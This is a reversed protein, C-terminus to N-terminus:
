KAGVLSQKIQPIKATIADALQNFADAFIEVGKVTLTPAVDGEVDIGLAKLRAMVDHAGEYDRDVTRAVVGHDLFQAVTAEPMTDVTEPGVLEEAYMVDRYAPNKAGTSAWLPRQTQAGRSALASFRDGRLFIEEFKQYALRANAVAAKGKLSTMEAKRAQDTEKALLADLRKDVEVDVRSVFFSAVSAVRDLPKGAAALKELGTIYAAAVKDYAALAFILTVNVNIGQGILQEIAQLGEETAPVKIMVNPRDILHHFGAGEKVTAEADHAVRPSVEISVYGDAGNSADYIPRLVDACNRIDDVVLAEYIAPTDKGEAVLARFQEDYEDSHGIAKEFYTPNTTMGRIGQDILKQLEGSTLLSRRINDYWPSQGFDHLQQLTTKTM